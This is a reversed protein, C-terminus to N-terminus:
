AGDGFDKGFAALRDFETFWEEANPGGLGGV